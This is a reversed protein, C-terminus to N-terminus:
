DAFHNLGQRDGKDMTHIFLRLESLSCVNVSTPDSLASPLEAQGKRRQPM